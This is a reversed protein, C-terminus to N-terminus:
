ARARQLSARLAENIDSPAEAPKPRLKKVKKGNRKDAIMQMVRQRYQDSFETPDFEAELMNILQRAMLLDRDALPEGSPADLASLPVVQEASRMAVLMPYGRYIDLAGTYSKNRMVWRAIGVQESQNLAESLAAYLEESGDPSLYYPRAFWSHDVNQRPLFQTVEITRSKEPQLEELDEETMIVRQQDATQYAKRINETAVAKGTRCNVMVQQVPAKDRRHLLRFHVSRDSLASFLKVPVCLEGIQVQGKWIARAAM